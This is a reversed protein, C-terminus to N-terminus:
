FNNCKWVEIGNSTAMVEYRYSGASPESIVMEGGMVKRYFVCDESFPSDREPEPEKEFTTFCYGLLILGVAAAIIIVATYKAENENHEMLSM